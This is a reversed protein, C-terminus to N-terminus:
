FGVIIQDVVVNVNYQFKKNNNKIRSQKEQSGLDKQKFPSVIVNGEKWKM